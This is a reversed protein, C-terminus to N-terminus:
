TFCPTGMKTESVPLCLPVSCCLYAAAMAVVGLVARVFDLGPVASDHTCRSSTQLLSDLQTAHVREPRSCSMVHNPSQSCSLCSDLDLICRELQPLALVGSSFGSDLPSEAGCVSSISTGRCAHVRNTHQQHPPPAPPYILLPASFCLSSPLPASPCPLRGRKTPAQYLTNLVSRAKFDTGVEGLLLKFGDADLALM